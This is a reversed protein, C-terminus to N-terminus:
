VILLDELLDRTNTPIIEITQGKTIGPKSDVYIHAYKIPNNAASSKSEQTTLSPHTPSWYRIVTIM